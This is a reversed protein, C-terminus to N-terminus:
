KGRDWERSEGKKTWKVGQDEDEHGAAARKSGSESREVEKESFGAAKLREATGQKWKARDRMAELALDWDDGVTEHDGM